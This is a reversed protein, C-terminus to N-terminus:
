PCLRAEQSCFSLPHSQWGWGWTECRCVCGKRPAWHGPAPNARTGEACSALSALSRAKVPDWHRRGAGRGGVRGDELVTRGMARVCAEGSSPEPRHRRLCGAVELLSSATPGGTVGDGVERCRKQTGPSWPRERFGRGCAEAGPGQSAPPRRGPEPMLVPVRRLQHGGGPNLMQLLVRSEEGCGKVVRAQIRCGCIQPSTWHPSTMTNTPRAPCPAEKPLTPWRAGESVGVCTTSGPDTTGRAGPPPLGSEPRGPGM